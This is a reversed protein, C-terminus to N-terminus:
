EFLDKGVEDIKYWGKKYSIEPTAEDIKSEVVTIEKKQAPNADDPIAEKKIYSHIVTTGKLGETMSITTKGPDYQRQSISEANERIKGQISRKIYVQMSFLAAAVCFIVMAYELTVQALKTRSKKEM